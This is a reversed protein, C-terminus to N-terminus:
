LKQKSRPFSTCNASIPSGRHCPGNVKESVLWTSLNYYNRGGQSDLIQVTCWIRKGNSLLLTGWAALSEGKTRGEVHEKM